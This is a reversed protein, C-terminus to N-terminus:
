IALPSDTRRYCRPSPSYNVWFDDWRNSLSAARVHAVAEARKANWRMGTQNMRIGVVQNVASEASGSGIQFGQKIYTPYDMRPNQNEFYTIAKSVMDPLNEESSLSQLANLVMNPGDHKLNHCCGEGWDQAQSTEKGLVTNGANWIYESAHYFDVIETTKQRPFMAAIRNWIWSAGDGLVVIQEAAEVGRKRAVLYTARALEEPNSHVVYEINIAHIDIEGEKDCREETEYVAAVKIEKGQGDPLLHNIGDASVYLYKPVITVECAPLQGEEWALEVATAQQDGLAQGIEITINNVTDHSVQIHCYKGLFAQAQEFPMFSGLYSVMEQVWPSMESGGLALREDLPVWGCHCGAHHYYARELKMEGLSSIYNRPEYRKWYVEKGCEPCSLKGKRRYRDLGGLVLEQTDQGIQQVWKRIRGEIEAATPGANDEGISWEYLGIMTERFTRTMQNIRKEVEVPIGKKMTKEEPREKLSFEIM